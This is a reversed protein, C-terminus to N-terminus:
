VEMIKLEGILFDVKKFCECFGRKHRLIILDDTEMELKGTFSESIHKTRYIEPVTYQRGKSLEIDLKQKGVGYDTAKFEYEDLRKDQVRKYFRKSMEKRCLKCYHNLGDDRTKDRHFHETTAPFKRRCKTCTKM